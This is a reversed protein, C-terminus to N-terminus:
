WPFTPGQEGSRLTWMAPLKKGQGPLPRAANAKAMQKRTVAVFAKHCIHKDPFSAKMRTLVREMRKEDPDFDVLIAFRTKERNGVFAANGVTELEIANGKAAPTNITVPFCMMGLDKALLTGIIMGGKDIAIIAEVNNQRFQEKLSAVIVHFDDEDIEDTRLSYRRIGRPASVRHFKGRNKRKFILWVIGLAIAMFFGIVFTDNYIFTFVADGTDARMADPHM